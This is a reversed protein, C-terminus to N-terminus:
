GRDGFRALALKAAAVVAPRPDDLLEALGRVLHPRSGLERLCPMCIVPGDAEDRGLARQEAASVSVAHLLLPRRAPELARDLTRELDEDLGRRAELGELKGPMLCRLIPPRHVMVGLHLSGHEEATISSGLPTRFAHFGGVRAALVGGDAAPLVLVDGVRLAGELLRGSVVTCHHYHGVPDNFIDYGDVLALRTDV